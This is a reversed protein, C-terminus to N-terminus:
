NRVQHPENNPLEVDKEDIVYPVTARQTRM